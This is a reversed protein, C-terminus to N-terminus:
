SANGGKKFVTGQFVACPTEQEDYITVVYTALKRNSASERAEARVRGSTIPRMYSITANIAVATERRSNSAAAFALDALSYIAGGHALGVGNKHQQGIEMEAEAYGEEMRTVSCGIHVAFLDRSTFWSADNSEDM